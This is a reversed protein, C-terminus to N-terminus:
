ALWSLQRDHAHHRVSHEADGMDGVGLTSGTARRPDATRTTRARLPPIRWWWSTRVPACNATFSFSGDPLTAGITRDLIGPGVLALAIGPAALANEGDDYADNKGAEDVYVM